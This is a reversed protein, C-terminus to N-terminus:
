NLSGALEDALWARLAPDRLEFLEFVGLARLSPLLALLRPEMARRVAEPTGPDLMQHACAVFAELPATVNHVGSIAEPARIVNISM